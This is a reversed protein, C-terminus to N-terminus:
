VAQKLSLCFCWEFPSSWQVTQRLLQPRAGATAILASIKPVSM